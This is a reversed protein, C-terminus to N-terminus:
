ATSSFIVRMLQLVQQDTCKIFSGNTCLENRIPVMIDMGHSGAYYLEALGVLQYVQFLIFM